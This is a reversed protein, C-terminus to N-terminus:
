SSTWLNPLGAFRANMLVLHHSRGRAALDAAALAAVSTSDLGGSVHCAVPADDPLRESVARALEHRFAEACESLSRPAVPYRPPQLHRVLRTRGGQVLLHHGPPVRKISRFFTEERTQYHALLFDLITVPDPTRDVASWALVGEVDTSFVTADGCVAYHMRRVGFPDRVLYSTQVQRDWLVFSFEGSLRSFCRAGWKLYAALVLGAGGGTSAAGLERRLEDSGDLRITGAVGVGAEDSIALCQWLSGDGCLDVVVRAGDDRRVNRHWPQTAPYRGEWADQQEHDRLFGGSWDLVGSLRAPM